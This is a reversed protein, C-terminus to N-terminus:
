QIAFTIVVSAFLEVEPTQGEAYAVGGLPIVGGYGSDCPTGGYPAYSYNSAGVVAGLGVGLVSAFAQGRERADEVAAQMAARELAACDSVTYSVSTSQLSINPLGGAASAVASVVGDVASVNGVAARVIASGRYYPDGYSPQVIVEIDDRSVGQGAIADVIPQLDAETIPQAQGIAPEPQPPTEGGGSDTQPIGPVGPEIGIVEGGFWFELVASDADVAASGYGQVTLGDQSSQFSPYPYPAIDPAILGSREAGVSDVPPSGPVPAAGPQGAAEDTAQGTDGASGGVAAVNLGKQTRIAGTTDDGDGGDGGCAIGITAAVALVVVAALLFKARM